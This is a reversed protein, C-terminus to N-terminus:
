KRAPAKSHETNRSILTLEDESALGEEIREEAEDLAQRTGARVTVYGSLDWPQAQTHHLLKYMKVYPDLDDEVLIASVDSVDKREDINADIEGITDKLELETARKDRARVDLCVDVDVGRMTYIEELFKERPEVPWDAIWYTRCYQQGTRVYGDRADFTQPALLEQVRDHALGCHREEDSALPALM